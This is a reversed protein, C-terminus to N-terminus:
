PLRQGFGRAKFTERCAPALTDQQPLLVSQVCNELMTGSSLNLSSRSAYHWMGFTKDAFRCAQCCREVEVISLKEKKHVDQLWLMAVDMDCHGEQKAENATSGHSCACSLCTRSSRQFSTEPQRERKKRRKKMAESGKRNKRAESQKSKGEFEMGCSRSFEGYPSSLPFLSSVWRPTWYSPVRFM